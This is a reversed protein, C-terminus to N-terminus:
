LFAEVASSSLPFAFVSPAIWGAEKKADDSGTDNREDAPNSGSPTFLIEVWASEICATAHVATKRFPSGDARKSEVPVIDFFVDSCLPEIADRFPAQWSDPLPLAGGSLQPARREWSDGAHRMVECAEDEIKAPDLTEFRIRLARVARSFAEASPPSVPITPAPPNTPSAVLEAFPVKRLFGDRFDERELEWLDIGCWTINAKPFALWDGPGLPAHEYSRQWTGDRFVMRRKFLHAEVSDGFDPFLPHTRSHLRLVFDCSRAEKDDDGFVYLSVCQWIDNTRGEVSLVLNPILVIQNTEALELFADRVCPLLAERLAGQLRRGTTPSVLPLGSTDYRARAADLRRHFVDFAPEEVVAEPAAAHENEEARSLSFSSAALLALFLSLPKM